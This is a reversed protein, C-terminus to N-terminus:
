PQRNGTPPQNGTAHGADTKPNNKNSVAPHVQGSGRSSSATSMTCLAMTLIMINLFFTRLLSVRLSSVAGFSVGYPEDYAGSSSCRPVDDVFDEQSPVLSSSGFM